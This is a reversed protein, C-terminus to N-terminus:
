ACDGQFTFGLREQFMAINTILQYHRVFSIQVQTKLNLGEYNRTCAISLVAYCHPSNSPACVPSFADSWNPSSLQERPSLHEQM